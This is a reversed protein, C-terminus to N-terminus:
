PNETAQRPQEELRTLPPQDPPPDSEQIEHSITCGASAWLMM